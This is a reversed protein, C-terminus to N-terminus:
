RKKNFEEQKKLNMQVFLSLPNKLGIKGNKMLGPAIDSKLALIVIIKSKIRLSYFNMTFLGFFDFNM